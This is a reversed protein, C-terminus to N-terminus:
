GVNVSAIQANVKVTNVRSPREDLWAETAPQQESRFNNWHRWARGSQGVVLVPPGSKQVSTRDMGKRKREDIVVVMGSNNESNM